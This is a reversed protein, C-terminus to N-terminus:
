GCRVLDVEVTEAGAPARSVRMRDAGTATLTWREESAMGEALCSLGLVATEGTEVIDAVTCSTEGATVIRDRGIEWAGGTCLEPSAAFRGTWDFQKPNAAVAPAPDEASGAPAALNAAGDAGREAAGCAALLALPAAAIIFRM